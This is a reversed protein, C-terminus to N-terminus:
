CSQHLVSIAVRTTGLGVSKLRLSRCSRVLPLPQLLAVLFVVVSYEVEDEVRIIGNGHELASQKSTEQQKRM